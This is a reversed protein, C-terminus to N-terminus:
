NRDFFSTNTILNHKGKTLMQPQTCIYVQIRKVTEEADYLMLRSLKSVLVKIENNEVREKRQKRRHKSSHPVYEKFFHNKCFKM